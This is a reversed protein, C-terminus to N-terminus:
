FEYIDIVHAELLHNPGRRTHSSTPANVSGIDQNDIAYNPKRNDITRISVRYQNYGDTYYPAITKDEFLMIGKPMRYHTYCGPMSSRTMLERHIALKKNKVLLVFSDTQTLLEEVKISDRRYGEDRVNAPELYDLANFPYRIAKRIISKHDLNIKLRDSSIVEYTEDMIHIHGDIVVIPTYDNVNGNIAVSVRTRERSLDSADQPAIVINDETFNVLDFGGVNTFDIVSIVNDVSDGFKAVGDIIYIQDNLYAHKCIQGNIVFLGNVALNKVHRSDSDNLTPSTIILDKDLGKPVPVGVGYGANGKETKFKYHSADRMLVTKSASPYILDSSPTLVNTTFEGLWTELTKSQDDPEIHSRQEKLDYLYLFSDENNSLVFYVNQYATLLVALTQSKVDVEHWQKAQQFYSKKFQYM